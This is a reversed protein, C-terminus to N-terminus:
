QGQRQVETKGEAKRYRACVYPNGRDESGIFYAALFAMPYEPRAHVVIRPIDDKRAAAKWSTFGM